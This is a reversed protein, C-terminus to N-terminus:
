RVVMVPTACHHIVSHSVSGLLLSAFGGRGRSGVVVLSAAAGARVLATAPHDAVVDVRVALGPHNRRVTAAAADARRTAASMLVDDLEPLSINWSAATSSAPTVPAAWAALVCLAQGALAAEDGARTLARMSADSGDIGVVVEQGVNPGESEPVAVVVSSSHAALTFTVSKAAFAGLVSHHRNGVVVVDASASDLVLAAAPSGKVVSTSIREPQLVKLARDYASESLRLAEEVLFPPTTPDGPILGAWAGPFDVAVVVSLRADHREAALAAWDVASDSANSGDYGVVVTLPDSTTM